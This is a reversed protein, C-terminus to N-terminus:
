KLELIKRTVEKDDVKIKVLFAGAVLGQEKASFTLHVDGGNRESNALVQILKGSLDYVSVNVFSRRALNFKINVKESYPNPYIDVSLDAVGAIQEDSLAIVNSNYAARTSNSRKGNEYTYTSKILVLIPFRHNSVYWRYTVDEIDTSRGSITQKYNKVEKVRLVNQFSKGDPLLLTGYGDGTVQFTGVIDGLYKENVNYTGEFNGTFNSNFTFPYQMKVFPKTYAIYVNGDGTMFGYQELTNDNGNFFFYNGFEELATNTTSFKTCGKTVYSEELSGVFDKTAELSTFDWVVNSGGNGPEVYKALMMPNKENPILGHSKYTLKTQAQVGLALVLMCIILYFKKM